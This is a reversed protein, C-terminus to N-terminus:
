NRPDTRVIIDSIGTQNFGKYGDNRELIELHSGPAGNAQFGAAQEATILNENLAADLRTPSINWPEAATFAQRLFPFDTFPAMTEIGASQLQSRAADFDFQCELHHMGAQLFAEGHLCCWLGVTGLEQSAPLPNHAIDGQIEDPTLDVDAFVILGCNPQELVQAGWGADRGAYFRERCEFGMKELIAILRHFAVRSSRYTHHDHNAWGLGLQQQRDFQVQAARNRSQWYEREAQFFLACTWDRGLEKMADDILEGAHAFADVDSPYDRKRNRFHELHSEALEITDASDASLQHGHWGRREAVRVEVNSEVSVTAHRFRSGALGTIPVDLSQATLFQEISDVKLVIKDSAEAEALRLIRPFMGLPNELWTGSSAAYGIEIAQNLEDDDLRLQLHDVWDALRTGTQSVMREALLALWANRDCMAVIRENIWAAAEPQPKWEFQSNALTMKLRQFNSRLNREVYRDDGLPTPPLVPSNAPLVYQYERQDNYELRPCVVFLGDRPLVDGFM